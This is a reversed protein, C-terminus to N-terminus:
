KIIYNVKAEKNDCYTARKNQNIKLQFPEDPSVLVTIYDVM